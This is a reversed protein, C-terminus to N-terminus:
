QIVWYNFAADRMGASKNRYFISFGTLSSNVYYDSDAATQNVPTILVSPNSTYPSPTSFSILIMSYALTNNTGDAVVQGKVNTMPVAGPNAGVIGSPIPTSITMASTQTSIYVGEHIKFNGRNIHLKEEPTTTNIGINVQNAGTGGLVMSNSSSVVANAGIATANSLNPSATASLGILTNASASGVASLGANKGIFINNNGGAFQMGALSGLAVNNFSGSINMSSLASEGIATNLGSNLTVNRGAFAGIFTNRNSGSTLLEGAQNGILTNQLITTSSNGALYGFTTAGTTYDIRGANLSNVRFNLPVADATGLFHFGDSTGSNGTLSWGMNSFSSLIPTGASNTMYVQDPPGLAMKSLTVAGDGIKNTTVAGNLIKSNTVAGDAIKVETIANNSITVIGTNTIGADGAMSVDIPLNNVDGVYIHSNTLFPMGTPGAEGQPGQPGVPGIEGQPGQPGAPGAPGPDGTAGKAVGADIQTNNSLTLILHGQSDIAATSISLGNVGAPGPDGPDGPDGKVFGADLEQGDTLSIYLHGDGGIKVTQVSVGQNGTPGQPGAPGIQGIPGAPGEPGIPGVPGIVYGADLTSNDNLKVILHGTAPDISVSTITAGALGTPGPPGAPGTDGVTGKVFGADVQSNDSLTLILHGQSDIIANTISIGNAGAPGTAGPPGNEAYKSYLAYPVSVLPTIGALTYVGLDSIDTEVRLSKPGLGWPIITFDGTKTLAGDSGIQINYLGLLNTKVQREESYHVKGNVGADQISLRIKINTNALPKGQDDRVAGQYNLQQPIQATLQQVLLFFLLFSSLRIMLITSWKM